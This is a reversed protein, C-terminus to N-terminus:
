FRGSNKRWKQVRKEQEKKRRAERVEPMQTILKQCYSLETWKDKDSKDSLITRIADKLLDTQHEQHYNGGGLFKAFFAYLIPTSYRVGKDADEFVKNLEQCAREKSSKFFGFFGSNKCTECTRRIESNEPLSSFYDFNDAQLLMIGLLLPLTLPIYKNM